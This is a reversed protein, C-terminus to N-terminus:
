TPHWGGQLHWGPHDGGRTGGSCTGRTMMEMPTCKNHVHPIEDKGCLANSSFTAVIHV